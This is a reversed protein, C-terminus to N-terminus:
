NANSTKRIGHTTKTRKEIKTKSRISKNFDIGERTVYKRNHDLHICIASYRIQKSKLGLNFLREGFERDEGGYVMREDFGCTTLADSKFCSANHGNWTPKTPTLFNLVEVWKGKACHKSSWRNKLGCTTLFDPDFADGNLIQERTIRHSGEMNLKSYGGSLFYGIQRHNVHQQLFDNRPICDGDSFVLYDAKAALISQNMIKCKQFGNDPQWVHKIDLKNKKQYQRILDATTENSGDDAVVIEFNKYLQAEYGWIVKELWEPANYTSIIVSIDM